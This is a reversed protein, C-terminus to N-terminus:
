CSLPPFISGPNVVNEAEIAQRATASLSDDGSIFWIFTHTDLLNDSM